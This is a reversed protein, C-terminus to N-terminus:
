INSVRGAIQLQSKPGGERNDLVGQVKSFANPLSKKVAEALDGPPTFASIADRLVESSRSLDPGYRNMIDDATQELVNLAGPGDHIELFQKLDDLNVDIGDMNLKGRLDLIRGGTFLTDLDLFSLDGVSLNFLDPNM